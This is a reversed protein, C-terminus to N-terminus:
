TAMGAAVPLERGRAALELASPQPKRLGAGPSHAPLLPIGAQAPLGAPGAPGKGAPVPTEHHPEPTAHNDPCPIPGGPHINDGTFTFRKDGLPCDSGLGQRPEQDTSRVASPCFVPCILRTQAHYNSWRM